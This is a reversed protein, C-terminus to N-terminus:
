ECRKECKTLVGLSVPDLPPRQTTLHLESPKLKQKQALLKLVNIMCTKGQCPGTSFASYRKLSEIDDYGAEIVKLFDEETLDECYCVIKKAV